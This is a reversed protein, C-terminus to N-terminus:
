GHKADLLETGVDRHMSAGYDLRLRFSYRSITSIMNSSQVDIM